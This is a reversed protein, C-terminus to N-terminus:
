ILYQSFHQMVAVASLGLWLGLLGGFNSVFQVFSMEPYHETIQDPLRNHTIQIATMNPTTETSEASKSTLTYYRNICKIGCERRCESHFQSYALYLCKVKDDYKCIKRDSSSMQETLWLNYGHSLCISQNSINSSINLDYHCEEFMRQTCHKVCESETKDSFNKAEIDYLRCHTQEKTANMDIKWRDYTIEHFQHWKVFVYQDSKMNPLEDPSHLALTIGSNLVRTIPYQNQDFYIQIFIDHVNMEYHTWHRDLHSFFTFCKSIGVNNSITEIPTFMEFNDKSMELIVNEITGNDHLVSGSLSVYIPYDIEEEKFQENLDFPITLNVLDSVGIGSSYILNVFNEEYLDFLKKIISSDNYDDVTMNDRIIKYQEYALKAEEFRNAVREMSLGSVFCITLGPVKNFANVQYKISVVTQGSTYQQVLDITQKILGLACLTFFIIQVCLKKRNIKHSNDSPKDCKPSVDGNDYRQNDAMM